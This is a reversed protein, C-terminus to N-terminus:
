LLYIFEKMNFMAHCYPTWIRADYLVADAPLELTAAQNELFAVAEASEDPTVERSFAIRYMYAIREEVSLEKLGVIQRAWYEAQQQVFPDNLLTLSQAPVNSTNRRGFTTFPIPMDFVLMMPSLFNRRVQLYLSRRGAGDLPGSEGPRGRGEMFSSLYVPVGPGYLTPDLRGSVALMADRIAEAELRRVPYHQLWTNEPDVHSAKDSAESSRRFTDSLVMERILAKVSWGSEVFRVALYDLLEPHTPPKGQVGFNDVSEVIGKGFVYHWIRNVMVRATLPNQDSAMGAAWQYRGSGSAEFPTQTTDLVTLGRRRVPTESPNQVSGRIFVPHDRGSGDVVGMFVEAEVLTSEVESRRELLAPLKDIEASLRGAVLADNIRAIHVPDAEGRQWADVAVSLPSSRQPLAMVAEDFAEEDHAVAYEMEIYSSDDRVYAHGDYKGPMIEVYAERGKWMSVDFRYAKMDPGDIAMELGGYIPYRILQFNDIIIRALSSSGAARITIYDKDLDFTPSRLTGFLKASHRASSARAGSLQVIRGEQDLLPRGGVPADGFALGDVFWGGWDGRRFDGIIDVSGRPPAPEVSLTVKRVPPGDRTVLSTQGDLNRQWQRAIADRISLDLEALTRVTEEREPTSDATRVAFRTSKVIGYWAYYDTTPIPDFKHDHCKACAVTLGQFTKSTVDIINDIREAEDIQLDVPSHKGEGLAFFNTALISENVGTEPNLRPTDLLDGALHEMVFQDYPVDANFARILYDRYQSAGIVPFDFEHGRTDAYRVLDMWHRAWREGFHPSALLRDVLREYAGPADDALFATLGEPTPPLGTLVYSLRRILATKSANSAPKLGQARMRANVFGDVSAREDPNMPPTLSWHPKWEAGQDIWRALLAVERPSLVKKMEPPPMREEPDDSAVRRILESSKSDGPTVAIEDSELAVIASDRLDLRLGAERSSIDPGHCVYCNASLIPRIHQNYDVIEPLEVTNEQRGCGAVAILSSIFIICLISKHSFM